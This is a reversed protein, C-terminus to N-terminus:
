EGEEFIEFQRKIFEDFPRRFSELLNGGAAWAYCFQYCLALYSRAAAKDPFREGPEALLSGLLSCLAAVKSADM